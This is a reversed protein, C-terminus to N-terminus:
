LGERECFWAKVFLETDGIQIFDGDEVVSRPIWREDSEEMSILIALDTTHIVEGEVIEYEDM